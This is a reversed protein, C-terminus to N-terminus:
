QDLIVLNPNIRRVARKAMWKFRHEEGTAIVEHNAARIRWRWSGAEDKYVQAYDGM